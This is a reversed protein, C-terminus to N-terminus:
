QHFRSREIEKDIRNTIKQIEGPWTKEYWTTRPDSEVRIRWEPDFHMLLPAEVFLKKLAELTSEAANTLEFLGHKKGKIM